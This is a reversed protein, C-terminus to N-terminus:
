NAQVYLIVSTSEGGGSTGTGTCYWFPLYYGTDTNSFYRLEADTICINYTNTLLTYSRKGAQVATLAAVPSDIHVTGSNEFEIPASANAELLTGDYGVSIELESGSVYCGDVTPAYYLYCCRGFSVVDALVFSDISEALKPYACNRIQERAYADWAAEDNLDFLPDAADDFTTSFLYDNNGKVANYVSVREADTDTVTFTIPLADSSKFTLSGFTTGGGLLFALAIGVYAILSVGIGLYRLPKPQVRAFVDAVTFGLCGGLAGYLLADLVFAGGLVVTPLMLLFGCVVGQLMAWFVNVRKGILALFVGPLVHPLLLHFLDSLLAHSGYLSRHILKDFPFLLPTAVAEARWPWFIAFALTAVWIFQIILQKNSRSQTQVEM